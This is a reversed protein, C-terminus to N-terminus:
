VAYYTDLFRVDNRAHMLAARGKETTRLVANGVVNNMVVIWDNRQLEILTCDIIERDNSAYQDFIRNYDIHQYPAAFIAHLVSRVNKTRNVFKTHKSIVM